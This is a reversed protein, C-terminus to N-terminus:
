SDNLVSIESVIRRYVSDVNKKSEGYIEIKISDETVRVSIDVSMEMELKSVLDVIESIPIMNDIKLEIIRSYRLNKKDFLPRNNSSLSVTREQSNKINRLESMITNLMININDNDSVVVDNFNAAQAKVIKVVTNVSGKNTAVLAESIDDIAKSVNEFLRHSNYEVTNIGSVDFITSTKEDKVLVVPMDYAQRLGLEYLVNPNRASLDCLAMPSNQIAEFIKNIISDSIKDEDVRFPEFGAKKIAPKFIQEYVKTFHNEDDEYGLQKSIPMMVFCKKVEENNAKKGKNENESM